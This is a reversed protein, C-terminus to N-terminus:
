ASVLHFLLFIVNSYVEKNINPIYGVFLPSHCLSQVLQREDGEFEFFVCVFMRARVCAHVSM